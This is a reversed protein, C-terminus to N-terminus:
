KEAKKCKPPETLKVWQPGDWHDVLVYVVNNITKTPRTM